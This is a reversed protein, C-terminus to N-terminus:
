PKMVGSGDCVRCKIWGRSCKSCRIKKFKRATIPNGVLDYAVTALYPKRIFGKTCAGCIRAGNGGCFLCCDDYVIQPPTFDTAVEAHPLDEPEDVSIFVVSPRFGAIIGAVDANSTFEPLLEINQRVLFSRIRSASIATGHAQATLMSRGSLVGIVNGNDDICPGGSSGQETAVGHIFTGKDLSYNAISGPYNALSAELLRPGQYGFAVFKTQLPPDDSSIRLPAFNKVPTQLQLTALEVASDQSVAQLTAKSSFDQCNHVRIFDGLKAIEGTTLVLDPAILFGSSTGVRRFGKPPRDQNSEGIPFGHGGSLSEISQFPDHEFTFALRQQVKPGVGPSGMALVKKLEAQDASDLDAKTLLSANHHTAFLLRPVTMEASLKLHNIAGLASQQRVAVVALNNYVSGLTTAHMEPWRKRLRDILEIARRGARQAMSLASKERSNLPVLAVEYFPAVLGEPFESSIPKLISAWTKAHFGSPSLQSALRKQQQATQKLTEIALLFERDSTSLRGAPMKVDREGALRLHVLDGQHGVYEAEVSSRGSVDTWTRMSYIDQAVVSGALFSTAFTVVLGVLSRCFHHNFIM